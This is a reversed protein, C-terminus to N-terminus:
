LELKGQSATSVKLNADDKYLSKCIVQNNHVTEFMDNQLLYVTSTKLIPGLVRQSVLNLKKLFILM